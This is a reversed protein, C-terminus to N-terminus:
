CSSAQIMFRECQASCATPQPPRYRSGHVRRAAADYARAAEEEDDFFGLSQKKGQVMIQANWKNRQKHWSVGRYASRGSSFPRGVAARIEGVVAELSMGDLRRREAEPMPLALEAAEGRLKFAVRHAVAATPCLM